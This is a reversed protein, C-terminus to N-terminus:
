FKGRIEGNVLFNGSEEVIMKIRSTEVKDRTYFMVNVEYPGIWDKIDDTFGMDIKLLEGTSVKKNLIVKRDNNLAKVKVELDSLKVLKITLILYPRVGDGYQKQIQNEKSESFTVIFPDISPRQKFQYDILVEFEDKPKFPVETAQFFYILFYLAISISM